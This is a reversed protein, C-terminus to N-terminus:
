KRDIQGGGARGFEADYLSRLVKFEALADVSPFNSLTLNSGRDVNDVGDITWNNASNRQGNVSFSVVAALGSPLSNGVYLQNLTGISVGPMMSVLQEYNRTGLALERIQTGTILGAPTASQLEVEAASAEVTVSESVAGVELTLNVTLKDNVNLSLGTVTAKKFGAIEVSVTYHGIPLLLAVYGGYADTNVSRIVENRDANKVTVMANAVAGGKSDTVTGAITGTVNQSFTACGLCLALFLAGLFKNTMSRMFFRRREVSMSGRNSSSRRLRFVANACGGANM